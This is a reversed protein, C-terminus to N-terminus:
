FITSQGELPSISSMGGWQPAPKVRRRGPSLQLLAMLGIGMNIGAFLGIALWWISDVRHEALFRWFPASGLM